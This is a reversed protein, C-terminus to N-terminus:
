APDGFPNRESFDAFEFNSIHFPQEKASEQINQLQEILTPTSVSMSLDGEITRTTTFERYLGDNSGVHALYLKTETQNWGVVEGRISFHDFNQTVTEGRIFGNSSSDLTLVYQYAFLEEVRDIGNIKTDFDEDSYEFLECRLKFVPLNSLQYFPSETDVKTIEFISESLPLYIVDGERPRYFKNSDYGEKTAIEKNWRRRALVFTAADRIEIGFKSFIDGDGDFGEVSEVYMEVKYAYEFRSLISESFITDKHVVERPLYYVDQGMMKISEIVIDEYLHQENRVKQSFYKNTAM